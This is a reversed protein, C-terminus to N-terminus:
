GERLRVVTLLLGQIGVVEVNEDVELYDGATRAKWNEDNIYVTGVPRLPRVVRGQQGIMGERGTIQKLHFSPIVKIHITFVLVAIILGMVIMLPLPIQVELFHLVLFVIVLVAVEDLLLVMVKLWDIFTTKNM